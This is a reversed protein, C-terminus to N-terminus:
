LKVDKFLFDKIRKVIQIKEYEYAPFLFPSPFLRGKGNVYFQRAYDRIEPTFNFEPSKFVRIGTGFEVFPAYSAGVSVFSSYKGLRGYTVSVALAGTKGRPARARAGLAINRAGDFVEGDIRTAFEKSYSEVKKIVDDLGNIKVSYM